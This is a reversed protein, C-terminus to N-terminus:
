ARVKAAVSNGNPFTIGDETIRVTYYYVESAVLGTDNYTLTGIGPSVQTDIVTWVDTPNTKRLLEYTQSPGEWTWTLTLEEVM